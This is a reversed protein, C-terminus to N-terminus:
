FTSFRANQIKKLSPQSAIPTSPPQISRGVRGCRYQSGADSSQEEGIEENKDPEEEEEEEKAKEEEM